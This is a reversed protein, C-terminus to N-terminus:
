AAVQASEVLELEHEFFFVTDPASEYGVAVMMEFTLMPDAAEAERAFEYEALTAETPEIKVAWEGKHGGPGTLTGELGVFPSNPAWDEIIRVTDGVQFSM